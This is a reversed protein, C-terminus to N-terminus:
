GSGSHTKYDTSCQQDDDCDNEEVFYSFSLDQLHACYKATWRNACRSSCADGPLEVAFVM